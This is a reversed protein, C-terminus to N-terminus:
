YGMQRRTDSDRHKSPYNQTAQIDALDELEEDTTMLEGAWKPTLRDRVAKHVDGDSIHTLAGTTNQENSSSKGANILELDRANQKRVSRDLFENPLTDITRTGLAMFADRSIKELQGNQIWRVVIPENAADPSLAASDQRNGRHELKHRVGGATFIVTNPRANRVYLTKDETATAM